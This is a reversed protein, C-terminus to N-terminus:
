KRGEHTEPHVFECAVPIHKYEIRYHKRLAEPLVPKEHVAGPSAAEDGDHGDHGRRTLLPVSFNRTRCYPEQKCRIVRPLQHPFHAPGLLLPEYGAECGCHQLSALYLVVQAQVAIPNCSNLRSRKAVASLPEPKDRDTRDPLAMLANDVDDAGAQPDVDFGQHDRPDRLDRPEQGHGIFTGGCNGSFCGLMGGLTAGLSLAPIGDPAQGQGLGQGLGQGAEAQELWSLSPAVRRGDVVLVPLTALLLAAWQTLM